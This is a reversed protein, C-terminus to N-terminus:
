LVFDVAASCLGALGIKANVRLKTTCSKDGNTKCPALADVRAYENNCCPPYYGFVDLPFECFHMGKECMVAEKEEFVTNESYQKGRCILGKEFGKFGSKFVTEGKKSSVFRGKEEREMNKGKNEEITM